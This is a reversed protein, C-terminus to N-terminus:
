RNFSNYQINIQVIFLFVHLIKKIYVSFHRHNGAAGATDPSHNCAAKNLIAHFGINSRTPFFFQLGRYALQGFYPLTYTDGRVERSHVTHDSKRCRDAGSFFLHM